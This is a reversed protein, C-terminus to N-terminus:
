RMSIKQILCSSYVTFYILILIQTIKYSNKWTTNRDQKNKGVINTSSEYTKHILIHLSQPYIHHYYYADTCAPPRHFYRITEWVTDTEKQNIPVSGKMAGSQATTQLNRSLSASWFVFSLTLMWPGGSREVM